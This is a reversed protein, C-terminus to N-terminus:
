TNLVVASLPSRQSSNSLAIIRLIRAEPSSRPDFLIIKQIPHLVSLMECQLAREIANSPFGNFNKIGNTREEQLSFVLKGDDLLCASANHDDHIGIVRFHDSM